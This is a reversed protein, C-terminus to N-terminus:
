AVGDVRFGEEVLFKRARAAQEGQLEIRRGKLAGGCGCSERLKKALRALFPEDLASDFGDIVVVCKGARHATERRLVVRGLRPPKEPAAAPTEPAPPAEPLGGIELAAFPNSLGASGASGASCDTAIRTKNPRSM